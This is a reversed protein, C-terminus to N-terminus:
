FCKETFRLIHTLLPPPRPAGFAKPCFSTFYTKLFNLGFCNFHFRSYTFVRASFVKKNLYTGGGLCLFVCLDRERERKRNRLTGRQWNREGDKSPKLTVLNPSEVVNPSKEGNNPLSTKAWINRFKQFTTM